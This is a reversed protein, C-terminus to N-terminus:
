GLVETARSEVYILAGPREGERCYRKFAVLKAVQSDDNWCRGKLADFTSRVLKDLDPRKSVWYDAKKASKPRYLRFEIVVELPGALPAVAAEQAAVACDTRWDRLSQKNDDVLVARGKVVFGRKSGQPAPTGIVDIRIM